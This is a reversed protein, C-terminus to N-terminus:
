PTTKRSTSPSRRTGVRVESTPKTREPKTGAAPTPVCGMIRVKARALEEPTMGLNLIDSVDIIKVQEPPPRRGCGRCGTLTSLDVPEGPWEVVIRHGGLGRCIPCIEDRVRRELRQLKTRVNM